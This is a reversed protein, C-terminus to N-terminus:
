KRGYPKKAVPKVTAKKIEPKRVPANKIEPKKVVGPKKVEPKPNVEPEKPKEIKPIFFTGECIPCVKIGVPIETRCNACVM